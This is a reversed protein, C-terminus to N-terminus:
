NSKNKKKIGFSSLLKKDASTKIEEILKDHKEKFSEYNAICLTRDTEKLDKKSNMILFASYLDRQILYNLEILEGSSSISKEKMKNWRQNLKKKIYKDEIHNYQSARFTTTNVKNLNLGEYGLKKDLITLFMSPAKNTLSKGFRGKRNFKGKKNKTILKSRKQLAKFNMQEVYIENGYTLIENALKNHSQKIYNAKLRYENKLEFLIKMYNKSRIWTLKIGKKVTGDNNFNHPNNARKSRELKRKLRNIKKDYDTSNPALEVLDVKDNSCIALSSTGIDLGVKENPSEKYRYEGTKYNVKLPPIGEIILQIFYRYGKKFPKRILRSYKLNTQALYLGEQAYLDNKKIIIPVELKNWVLKNDKFKLPSNKAKGELSTLSGYKKLHVKKGKKFLVNNIAKWVTSAIKQATASDINDKYKKYQVQVYDHLQYESLSFSLRITKLLDNYLKINKKIEKLEKKDKTKTELDKFYLYQKLTQKYTKNNRMQSLRENAFSLVNNYILEGIRFRKELIHEQFLQTDLRFELVFYNNNTTKTM